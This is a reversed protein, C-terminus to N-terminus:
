PIDANEEPSKRNLVEKFHEALRADQEAETTLLKGEKDRIPPSVTSHYKGCIQKSIRHLMSQEGRAAAIEAGRALEEVFARHDARVMRKVTKNTEKYKQKYKEQLRESQSSLTQNKLKRREDIVKWTNPKIWEKSRKKERYGM